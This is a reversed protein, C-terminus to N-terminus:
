RAGEANRPLDLPAVMVVGPPARVGRLASHCSEGHEACRSREYTRLEGGSLDGARQPLYFCEYSKTTHHPQSPPSRAFTKPRNPILGQEEDLLTHEIRGMAM